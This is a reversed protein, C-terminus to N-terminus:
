RGSQCGPCWYTPRDVPAAGVRMTRIPAGCVACPRGTREFVRLGARQQRPRDAVVARRMRTAIRALADALAGVQSTPTTPHVGAESALEAAWMTGLGSVLRQELLAEVLPRDATRLIGAAAESDFGDGLIDPGLHGVWVHEQDSPLVQVMHVRLGVAQSDDSALLVRVQHQPGPLRGPPGTWWAGDMRLHHHLTWSRRQDSLRTLMHKGHVATGVVTMGRLDVLAYRPVRLDSRVLVAGALAADLRAATRRVADGEPVPGDDGVV